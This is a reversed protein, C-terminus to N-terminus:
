VIRRPRRGANLALLGAAVLLGTGPEPVVEVAGDVFVVNAFGAPDLAFGETFDTLTEALVLDTTGVAIAVFSLTALLVDTGVVGTQGAPPLMAGALGDGDATAVPIPWLPGISPTGDLTIVGADFGLDLGWALVPDPLDARITVEFTEGVNVPVLPGEVRVMVTAVAPWALLWVAAMALLGGGFRFSRADM